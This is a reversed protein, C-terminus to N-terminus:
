SRQFFQWANEYALATLLNESAGELKMRLLCKPLCLPDAYGYHLGSNLMLREGGSERVVALVEKENLKRRLTFPGDYLPSVAIGYGGLRLPAALRLKDADLDVIAVRSRQCRGEDLERSLIALMRAFDAPPVPAEILVPLARAEALQLQRVFLDIEADSFSRLALEGIAAVESRDLRAEVEELGALAAEHGDMEAANVALAVLLEIGFCAAREREQLLRDFREAYSRRDHRREGTSSCPALITEVGGLAMLEYDNASRLDPHCHHDFIPIRM